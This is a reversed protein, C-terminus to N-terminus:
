AAPPETADRRGRFLRRGIWLAPASLAYTAFMAALTAAVEQTSAAAVADPAPTTRGPTASPDTPTTPVPESAPPRPHGGYILGLRPPPTPAPLKLASSSIAPASPPTPRPEEAAPTARPPSPPPEGMLPAGQGTPAVPAGLVTNVDGFIPVMRGGVAMFAQPERSGTVRPDSAPDPPAPTPPPNPVRVEAVTAPDPAAGRQRRHARLSQFACAGKHLRHVLLDYDISM